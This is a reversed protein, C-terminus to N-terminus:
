DSSPARMSVYLILLLLTLDRIQSKKKKGQDAYLTPKHKKWAHIFYFVLYLMQVYQDLKTSHLYMHAM